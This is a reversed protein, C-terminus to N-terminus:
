SVIVWSSVPRKDPCYAVGQGPFFNGAGRIRAGPKLVGSETYDELDRPPVREEADKRKEADTMEPRRQSDNCRKTLKTM